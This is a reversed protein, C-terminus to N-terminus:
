IDQGSHQAQHMMIYNQLRFALNDYDPWQKIKDLWQKFIKDTEAVVRRLTEDLGTDFKAGNYAKEVLIYNYCLICIFYFPPSWDGGGIRIKCQM